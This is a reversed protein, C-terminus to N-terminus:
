PPWKSSDGRATGLRLPGLLPCSTGTAALGPFCTLSLRSKQNRGHNLWLHSGQEFSGQPAERGAQSKHSSWSCGLAPTICPSIHGPEAM